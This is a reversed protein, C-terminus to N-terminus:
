EGAAAQLYTAWPRRTVTETAAAALATSCRQLASMLTDRTASLISGDGLAEGFARVIQSPPAISDSEGGARAAIEALAVLAAPLALAKLARM